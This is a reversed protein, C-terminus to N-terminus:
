KKLLSLRGLIAPGIDKIPLVEGAAGLTIAAKPMGYVVSSQEDQAITHWGRQKMALLGQAGDRGMGTLLVGIALGPWNKAVSHFFIDVSPHYPNDKHAKTYHLRQGQNLELHDNTTPMHIVGKELPAGELVKKVPLRLQKNLCDVLGESFMAEMHQIVVIPWPFTTDFCTLVDLLAKPGGTSCGIVLLLDQEKEKAQRARPLPPANKTTRSPQLGLLVGIRAIKELLLKGNENIKDAELMPTTVADLAGAGMAEFVKSSHGSVTATVVLIACPSNQMIRRTAEVGNMKPMMLDMLVLDPTKEACLQVAEQGDHATWIVQHEPATALVLQLNKVAMPSDDVIGIKM